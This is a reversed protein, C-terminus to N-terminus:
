EEEASPRPRYIFDFGTQWSLGHDTSTEGHQRVSGDSSPTYTMRVLVPNGQPDRGWYGSLVMAEGARGGEFEVREGGSGIWVQNWVGSDAHYHSLSSGGEGRFPMWQERVACGNHLRQISSHAVPEEAGNPTVVWEGVWFDFGAHADSACPTPPQVPAPPAPDAVPADQAGNAQLAIALVIQTIM